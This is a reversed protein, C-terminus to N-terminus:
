GTGLVLNIEEISKPATSLIDYGTATVAVVDEIRVGGLELQLYHEVATKNLYGSLITDNLAPRLLAENFYCGPEVTLVM